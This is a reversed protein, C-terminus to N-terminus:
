LPYLDRLLVVYWGSIGLSTVHGDFGKLSSGNSEFKRGNLTQISQQRCFRGLKLSAVQKALQIVRSAFMKSFQSALCVSVGVPISYGGSGSSNDICELAVHMAFM